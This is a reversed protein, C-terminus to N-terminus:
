YTKDIKRNTQPRAAGMQVQQNYPAPQHSVVSKTHVCLLPSPFLKNCVCGGDWGGCGRSWRLPFRARPPETAKDWGWGDHNQLSWTSIYIIYYWRMCTIFSVSNTATNLAGSKPQESGKKFCVGAIVNVREQRQTSIDDHVGGGCFQVSNM